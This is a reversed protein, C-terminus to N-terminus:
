YEFIKNLADIPLKETGAKQLKKLTGLYDLLAKGFPKNKREKALDYVDFLIKGTNSLDNRTAKKDFLFKLDDIDVIKMQKLLLHPVLKTKSLNKDQAIMFLIKEPSFHKSGILYDLVKKDNDLLAIRLYFDYDPEKQQKILSVKDTSAKYAKFEEHISALKLPFEKDKMWGIKKKFENEDINIGYSLLLRMATIRDAKSIWSDALLLNFFAKGDDANVDAGNNLLLAAIEYNGHSAAYGLPTHGYGDSPINLAAGLDLLLMVVGKLDNKIAWILPTMHVEGMSDINYKKEGLREKIWRITAEEPTENGSKTIQYYDKPLIHILPEPQIYFVTNFIVIVFVILSVKSTIRM